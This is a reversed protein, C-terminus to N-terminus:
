HVICCGHPRVTLGLTGVTIGLLAIAMGFSGGRQFFTDLLILGLVGGLSLGTGVWLVIDPRFPLLRSINLHMDSKNVFHLVLTLGFCAIAWVSVILLYRSSFNYLLFLLPSLTAAFTQAAISLQKFYYSILLLVVPFALVTMRQTDTALLIQSIALPVLLAMWRARRPAYFWGAFALLWGIEFSFYVEKLPNIQKWGSIIFQVYELSYFNSYTTFGGTGRLVLGSRLFLFVSLFISTLILTKVLASGFGHDRWHILFFVPFLLVVTEKVWVSVFVIAALIWFREHYIAICGLLLFWHEWYGIHTSNHLNYIGAYSFIYVASLLLATTLRLGLLRNFWFVLTLNVGTFALLTLFLFTAPLPQGSVSSLFAALYPILIRYGHPSITFEGVRQAMQLYTESDGLGMGHTLARLLLGLAFYASGLATWQWWRKLTM